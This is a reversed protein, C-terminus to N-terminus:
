SPKLVFLPITRECRKQYSVYLPFQGCVLDWLRARAKGSVERANVRHEQKGRKVTATSDARLNHAWGPDHKRGGNSGVVVLADGDPYAYLEVSRRKGSKAGTTTLSIRSPL